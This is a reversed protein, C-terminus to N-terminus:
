PQKGWYEMRWGGAAEVVIAEGAIVAPKYVRDRRTGPYDVTQRTNALKFRVVRREDGSGVPASTVHSLTMRGGRIAAGDGYVSKLFRFGGECARCAKSALSRLGGLDGTAQAYNVMAWYYKVFAEAGAADTRRAEPPMTPEVPDGPSTTTRAAPETGGSSPAVKPVAGDGSCAGLALLPLLSM